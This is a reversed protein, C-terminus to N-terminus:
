QRRHLRHVSARPDRVLPELDELRARQGSPLPLRLVSLQHLENGDTHHSVIVARQRAPLPRHPRWYTPTGNSVHLSVNRLPPVAIGEANVLIAVEGFTQRGLQDAVAPRLCVVLRGILTENCSVQHARLRWELVAGAPRVQSPRVVGLPV